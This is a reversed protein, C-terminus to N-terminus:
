TFSPIKEAVFQLIMRADSTNVKGDRNVDAMLLDLTDSERKEAVYQLVFRADTTNIKTDRNVDGLLGQSLDVERTESESCNQCTRRELAQEEVPEWEGWDHPLPDVVETRTDGCVGCTFSREGEQDCSPEQTVVGDGWEHEHLVYVGISVETDNPTNAIQYVMEMRGDEGERLYSGFLAGGEIAPVVMEALTDTAPDYVCLAQPSNFYLKGEYASLGGYFGPWYSNEGAMWRYPLWCVDISEGTSFDYACLMEESTYYWTDGISVFSNTVEAWAAGEDFRTSTCAHDSVWSEYGAARLAEDSRLFYTHRVRGAMDPMADDWTVDVNYWEGDVLAQTWVHDQAESYAWSTTVGVREMVARFTLMYAQCVGTGNKFFRYADYISLSEDYSFRTALYDHVFLLKQLDSWEADVLNAIYQVNREYIRRADSLAGGVLTYRPYVNIVYTGEVNNRWEYTMDVFFLEPEEFILRQFTDILEAKTAKYEAVAIDDRSEMLGDYLADYLTEEASATVFSLPLAALLLVFTLLWATTKQLTRM